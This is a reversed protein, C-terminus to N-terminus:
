DHCDRALQPFASPDPLSARLPLDFDVGLARLGVKWDNLTEEEAGGLAGSARLLCGIVTNSNQTIPRYDMGAAQIAAAAAELRAPAAAIVAPDFSLPHLEHIAQGENPFDFGGRHYPHLTAYLVMRDTRASPLFDRKLGAAFSVARGYRGDPSPTPVVLLFSHRVFFAYDALYKTVAVLPPRDPGIARTGIYVGPPLTRADVQGNRVLAYGAMVQDFVVPGGTRFAREFHRRIQADSANRGIDEGYLRNFRTRADLRAWGDAAALRRADGTVRVFADTAAFFALNLIVNVFAFVLM